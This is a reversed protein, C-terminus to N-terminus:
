KCLRQFHSYTQDFTWAAPDTEDAKVKTRDNGQCKMDMAKYNMAPCKGYRICAEKCQAETIGVFSQEKIIFQDLKYHPYEAYIELM